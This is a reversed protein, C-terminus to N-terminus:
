PDRVQREHDLHQEEERERVEDEAQEVQQRDWREVARREDLADQRALPQRAPVAETGVPDQQEEDDTQRRVQEAAEKRREDVPQEVEDDSSAPSAAGGRFVIRGRGTAPAGWPP